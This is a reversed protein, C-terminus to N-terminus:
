PRGTIPKNHNHNHFKPKSRPRRERLFFEQVEDYFDRPITLRTNKSNQFLILDPHDGSRSWKRFAMFAHVQRPNTPIEYYDTNKILWKRFEEAECREIQAKPPNLDERGRWM